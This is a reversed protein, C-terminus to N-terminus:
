SEEMPNISAGVPTINVTISQKDVFETWYEPLLITDSNRLRGRVYVDNYFYTKSLHTETEVRRKNPPFTLDKKNSLVHGGCNSKVEGQTLLDDGVIVDANTNVDDM